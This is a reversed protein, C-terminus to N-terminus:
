KYAMLNLSSDEDPNVQCRFDHTWTDSQLNNNPHLTCWYISDVPGVILQVKKM